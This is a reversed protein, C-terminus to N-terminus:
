NPYLIKDIKVIVWRLLEKINVFVSKHSIELAKTIEPTTYSDIRNKIM